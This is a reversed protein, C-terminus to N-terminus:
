PESRPARHLLLADVALDHAADAYGMEALAKVFAVIADPAVDGLGDSGIFDLMSLIADGRRGSNSRAAAVRDRVDAGPERGQWQRDKLAMLAAGAEPPTALGLADNAGLALFATSLTEDGGGSPPATAQAAFWSLAGQAEFARAPSPAVLNLETQMLHILPLDVPSKPDLADLWRAAAEAHRSLMLASAMLAAHRRDERVPKISSAASGQFRAALPLLNKRDALALAEFLLKKKVAPDVADRVAQRLLAQGALFALTPAVSGARALQDPTFTAADAIVALEAATAAGTRVVEEAAELRQDPANKADRMALVNVPAGLQQSWAPDIPMGASRLLFVDLSDLAAIRAPINAHHSAVDDLLMEFGRSDLKQAQMVTRTLELASEDGAASYCYARLKVWFRESSELRTSTAPGCVDNAHGSFLISDAVLRALEPDDKPVARAALSGADDLMGADLLARLRASLFAHPAEGDPADATTLVLRRALARVSEVPTALPLRKLMEEVRARSTDQWIDNGLGDNTSDLLGLPPGDVAGLSRVRIAAQGNDAGADNQPEPNDATEPAPSGSLAMPPGAATRAAPDAEAAGAACMLALVAIAAGRILDIRFGTM